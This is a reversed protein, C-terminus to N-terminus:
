QARFTVQLITKDEAFRLPRRSDIYLWVIAVVLLL